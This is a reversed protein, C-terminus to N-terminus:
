SQPIREGGYHIEADDICNPCFYQRDVGTIKFSQKKPFRRGCSLCAVNGYKLPGGGVTANYDHYADYDPDKNNYIVERAEELVSEFIRNLNM